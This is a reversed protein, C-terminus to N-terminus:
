PHPPKVQWGARRLLTAAQALEAARSDDYDPDLEWLGECLTVRGIDRDHRLLSSVLGSSALGAVEKLEASRLPGRVALAHRM